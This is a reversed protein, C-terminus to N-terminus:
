YTTQLITLITPNDALTDKFPSSPPNVSLDVGADEAALVILSVQAYVPSAALASISRYWLDRDGSVVGYTKTISSGAYYLDLGNVIMASLTSVMRAPLDGREEAFSRLNRLTKLDKDKTAQIARKRLRDNLVEIIM